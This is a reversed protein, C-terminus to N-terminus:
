YPEGGVIRRDIVINDGRVYDTPLKEKCAFLMPLLMLMLLVTLLKKM